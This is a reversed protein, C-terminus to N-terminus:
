AIMSKKITELEKTQKEVVIKLLNLEKELALMKKTCRCKEVNNGENNSTQQSM